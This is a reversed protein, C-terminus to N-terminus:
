KETAAGDAPGTATATATAEATEGSTKKKRAAPKKKPVPAETAAAATEASGAVAEKKKENFLNFILGVRERARAKEEDTGSGVDIAKADLVIRMERNDGEGVGSDELFFIEQMTRLAGSLKENDEKLVRMEEAAAAKEKEEEKARKAAKMSEELIGVLETIGESAEVLKSRLAETGLKGAEAKAEAEAEKGAKVDANKAEMNVTKMEETGETMSGTEEKKKGEEDEDVCKDGYEDRDCICEGEGAGCPGGTCEGGTWSFGTGNWKTGSETEGSM